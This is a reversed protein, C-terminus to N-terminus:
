PRNKLVDSSPKRKLVETRIERFQERTEHEIFTKGIIPPIWNGPISESHLIIKTRGAEEILQTTGDMKRMSGSIMHSQITDFPTLLLERTSEFPFNALGFSAVGRQYIKATSESTSIVRSEKLNTIFSAMHEFDTLVAWAQRPTAAVYMSLDVIVTEGNIQVNVAINEDQVPESYAIPFCFEAVLFILVFIFKM